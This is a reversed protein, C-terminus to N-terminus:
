HWLLVDAALMSDYCVDLDLSLVASYSFQCESMLQLQRSMHSAADEDGLDCM